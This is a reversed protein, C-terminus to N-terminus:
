FIQRSDSAATHSLDLVSHCSSDCLPMTDNKQLADQIMRQTRVRVCGYLCACVCLLEDYGLNM